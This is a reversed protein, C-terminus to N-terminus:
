EKKDLDIGQREVSIRLLTLAFAYISQISREEKATEIDNKISNQSNVVITELEKKKSADDTKSIKEKIEEILKEYENKANESVPQKHKKFLELQAKYIKLQASKEDLSLENNTLIENIAKELYDSDEKYHEKLESTEFEKLIEKYEDIIEQGNETLKLLEDEKFNEITKTVKITKNTEKNKIILTVLLSTSRAKLEIIEVEYKEKDYNGDIQIDEKKVNKSIRDTKDSVDLEIKNAIEQLNQDRPMLDPTNPNTNNTCSAAITTIPLITISPIIMFLLKKLKM